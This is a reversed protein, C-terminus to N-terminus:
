NSSVPPMLETGRCPLHVVVAPPSRSQIRGLSRALGRANGDVFLCRDDVRHHLSKTPAAKIPRNHLKSKKAAFRSLSFHHHEHFPSGCSAGLCVEVGGIATEECYWACAREIMPKGKRKKPGANELQTWRYLGMASMTQQARYVHQDSVTDM